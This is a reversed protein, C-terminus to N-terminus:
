VSSHPHSLCQHLSIVQGGATTPTRGTRGLLHWALYLTILVSYTLM